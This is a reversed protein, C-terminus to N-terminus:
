KKRSDPETAKYCSLTEGKGIGLEASGDDLRIALVINETKRTTKTAVVHAVYFLTLRSGKPIQYIEIPEAAHGSGSRQCAGQAKAFFTGEKGNQQHELIIRRMAGTGILRGSIQPASRAASPSKQASAGDGVYVSALVGACFFSSASRLTKRM